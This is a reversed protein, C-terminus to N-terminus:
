QQQQQQQQWHTGVPPLPLVVRLMVGASASSFSICSSHETLGPLAALTVPWAWCRGLLPPVGVPM